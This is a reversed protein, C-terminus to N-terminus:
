RAKHTHRKFWRVLGPEEIEGAAVARFIVVVEAEPAEFRYGNLGLFATSVFFATRKNGDIFPHNHILGYAYAGALEFVTSKPEYELRMPARNMASEFANQDRMGDAGGFELLALEHMALAVFPDIWFM